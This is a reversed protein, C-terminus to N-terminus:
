ADKWSIRYCGVYTRCEDTKLNIEYGLQKLEDITFDSIERILVIDTVGNTAVYRIHRLIDKLERNPNDALEKAQKATLM